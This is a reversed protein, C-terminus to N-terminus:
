PFPHPQVPLKSQVPSKRPMAKQIEIMSTNKGKNFPRTASTGSKVTVMFPKGKNKKRLRSMTKHFQKSYPVRYSIPYRTSPKRMWIYLINNPKDPHFGLVWVKEFGSTLVKPEGYFSNMSRYTLFVSTLISLCIATRILIHSKSFLTLGFAILLFCGIAISVIYHDLM